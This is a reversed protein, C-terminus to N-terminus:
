KPFIISPKIHQPGEGRLTLCVTFQRKDLGNGPSRIYITTSGKYDLTSDQDFVFPMPIEDFTYTNRPHFRGYEASQHRHQTDNRIDHMYQHFQQIAPEREQWKQRKKNTRMRKVVEYKHKWNSLWGESCKFQGWGPPKDESLMQKFKLKVWLNSVKQGKGRKAKFLQNLKEGQDPHLPQRVNGIHKCLKMQRKNLFGDRKNKSLLYAHEYIRNRDNYWKNVLSREVDFRTSIEVEIRISSAFWQKLEQYLDIVEVKTWM